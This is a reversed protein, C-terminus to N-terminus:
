KPSNYYHLKFAYNVSDKNSDYFIYLTDSQPRKKIFQGISLAQKLNLGNSIPKEVHIARLISDNIIILANNGTDRFEPDSPVIFTLTGSINEQKKISPYKSLIEKNYTKVHSFFKIVERIVGLSVGFLLLGIFLKKM